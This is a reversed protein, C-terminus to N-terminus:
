NFTGALVHASIHGKYSHFSVYDFLFHRLLAATNIEGQFIINQLQFVTASFLSKCPGVTYSDSSVLFFPFFSKLPDEVCM